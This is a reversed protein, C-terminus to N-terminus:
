KKVLKTIFLILLFIIFIINIIMLSDFVFSPLVEKKYATVLTISVSIVIIISFKFILKEM